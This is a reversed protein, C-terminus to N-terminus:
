DNVNLLRRACRIPLLCLSLCYPILYLSEQCNQKGVNVRGMLNVLYQYTLSHISTFCEHLVSYISDM